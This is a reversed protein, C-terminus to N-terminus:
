FLFHMSLITFLRLFLCFKLCKKWGWKERLKDMITFMQEIFLFFNFKRLKYSVMCATCVSTVQYSSHLSIVANPLQLSQHTSWCKYLIANNFHESTNQPVCFVICIAFWRPCFYNLVLLKRSGPLHSYYNLV